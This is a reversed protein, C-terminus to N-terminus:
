LEGEQSGLQGECHGDKLSHGQPLLFLPYDDQVSAYLGGLGAFIFPFESATHNVKGVHSM